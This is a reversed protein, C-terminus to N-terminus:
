SKVAVIRITWQQLLWDILCDILEMKDPQSLAPVLPFLDQHPLPSPCGSHVWLVAFYSVCCHNQHPHSYRGVGIEGVQCLYPKSHVILLFTYCNCNRPLAKLFWQLSFTYVLVTSSWYCHELSSLCPDQDRLKRLSGYMRQKETLLKMQGLWLEWSTSLYMHFESMRM